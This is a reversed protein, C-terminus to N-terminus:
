CEYGFVQSLDHWPESKKGKRIHTCCTRAMANVAHIWPRIKASQRWRMCVRTYGLLTSPLSLKFPLLIVSSPSTMSASASPLCLDTLNSASEDFLKVGLDLPTMRYSFDSNIKFLQCLLWHWASPPRLLGSISCANQKEAPQPCRKRRAVDDRSSKRLVSFYNVIKSFFIQFMGTLTIFHAKRTLWPLIHPYM